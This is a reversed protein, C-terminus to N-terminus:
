SGAQVAARLEGVTTIDRIRALFAGVTPSQQRLTRVLDPVPNTPSAAVGETYSGYFAFYAQNLKRISYGHRQLADRRRDMYREAREVQGAALLRDTVQRTQGMFARLDFRPADVSAPPRTPEALGLEGAVQAGLEDGIMEATTENIERTEQSQWYGQGLPYFILYQHAWEHAASSLVQRPSDSEVVMSPYTALGGTPVVLTSVGDTDADTELQDMQATNLDSALLLSQEVRIATRPSVILVNPSPTLATLVPPFLRGLLPAETREAGDRISADAIRREIAAEAASRLAARQDAGAGFYDSLTAADQEPTTISSGVLGSWLSGASTALHSVEWDLLTFSRPAALASMRDSTSPPGVALWPLLVLLAPIWRAVSLARRGLRANLRSWRWGAPASWQGREFPM